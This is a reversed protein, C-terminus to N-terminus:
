FRQTKRVGGKSHQSQFYTGGCEAKQKEKVKDYKQEDNRKTKDMVKKLKRLM